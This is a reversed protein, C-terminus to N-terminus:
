FIFSLTRSVESKSSQDFNILHLDTEKRGATNWMKFSFGKFGKKGQMIPFIGAKKSSGVKFIVKKEDFFLPEIKYSKQGVCFYLKPTNGMPSQTFFLQSLVSKASSLM